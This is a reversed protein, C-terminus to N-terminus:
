VIDDYALIVIDGELRIGGDEDQRFEDDISRKGGKRNSRKPIHHESCTAKSQDGLSTRYYRKKNKRSYDINARPRLVADTAVIRWQGNLRNYYKLNAELLASPPEPIKLEEGRREGDDNQNNNAGDDENKKMLLSEEKRWIISAETDGLTEMVRNKFKEDIQITSSNIDGVNLKANTCYNEVGDGDPSSSSSSIDDNGNTQDVKASEQILDTLAEDLCKSLASLKSIQKITNKRAKSPCEYTPRYM